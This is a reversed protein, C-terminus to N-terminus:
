KISNIECAHWQYQSGVEDERGFCWGIKNLKLTLNYRKDCAKETNPDNGSGGNCNENAQHWNEVLGNQKKSDSINLPSKLPIPAHNLVENITRKIEDVENETIGASKKSSFKNLSLMTERLERLDQKNLKSMYPAYKCLYHPEGDDIRVQDDLTEFIINSQFEEGAEICHAKTLVKFDDIKTVSKVTCGQEIFGFERGQKEIEFDIFDLENNFYLPCWQTNKLYAGDKLPLTDAVVIAPIMVIGFVTAILFDLRSMSSQGSVKERVHNM